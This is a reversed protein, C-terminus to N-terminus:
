SKWVFPTKSCKWKEKKKDIANSVSQVYKIKEFQAGDIGEDASKMPLYPEMQATSTSSSPATPSFAELM